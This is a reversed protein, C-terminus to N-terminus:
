GHLSGASSQSLPRRVLEIPYRPLDAMAHVSPQELPAACRPCPAEAPAEDDFLFLKECRVCVRLPM